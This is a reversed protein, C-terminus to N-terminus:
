KATASASAATAAASCAPPWTSVRSQSEIYPRIAVRRSGSPASNLTRCDLPSSAGSRVPQGGFGVLAAFIALRAPKQRALGCRDPVAPLGSVGLRLLLSRLEILVAEPRDRLDDWTVRLVTYGAAVLRNQRRRDAVFSGRDRHAAFGDVEIVLRVEPFLVDVVAILGAPDHVPANPHWGSLGATRLMEHLKLEAISAAGSRALSLLRLLTPTGRRGLRDRV